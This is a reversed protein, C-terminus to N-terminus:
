ENTVLPAIFDRRLAEVVRELRSSRSAKALITDGSKLYARVAPVASEVDPFAGVTTAGAAACATVLSYRGIAFLADLGLHAAFKGVEEHATEAQPGLEAMDGLVAVRRGSCPLDYLTQLAALM